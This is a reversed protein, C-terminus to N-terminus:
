DFCTLPVLALFAEGVLLEGVLVDGLFRAVPPLSSSSPEGFFFRAGALAFAAVAISSFSSSAATLVSADTLSSAVVGSGALWEAALSSICTGTVGIFPFRLDAASLVVSGLVGRVGLVGFALVAALSLWWVVGVGLVVGRLREAASLTASLTDSGVEQASALSASLSSTAIFCRLMDQFSMREM